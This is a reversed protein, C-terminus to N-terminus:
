NALHWEGNEIMAEAFGTLVYFGVQVYQTKDSLTQKIPTLTFYIKQGPKLDPGLDDSFMRGPILVDCTQDLNDIKVRAIAFRKERDSLREEFQYVTIPNVIEGLYVGKIKIIASEEKDGGGCNILTMMLVVGILVIFNRKM